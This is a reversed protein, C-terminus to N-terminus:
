EDKITDMYCYIQIINVLNQLSISFFRIIYIIDLITVASM